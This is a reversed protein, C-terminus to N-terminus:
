PSTPASSKTPSSSSPSSHSPKRTPAYEKFSKQKKTAKAARHSFSDRYSKNKTSMSTTFM